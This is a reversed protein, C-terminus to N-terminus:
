LEKPRWVQVFTGTGDTAVARWSAVPLAIQALAATPMREYVGTLEELLEEIGPNHGVLMLSEMEDPVQQIVELYEEPDAMYLDRTMEIPGEYDCADAFAQATDHARVAGSSIILDPALDLSKALAGMRPADAQGRRNLPRAYDALRPDEWSSKAHRLLLLTKM